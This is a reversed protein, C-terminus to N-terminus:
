APKTEITKMYEALTKNNKHSTVAAVLCCVGSIILCAVVFYYQKDGMAPVADNGITVIADHAKTPLYFVRAIQMAGIFALVGTYGTKRNKVGESALFAVLLFLLNYIISAGIVWTYYYSGVDTKYISVFYLADLVIAAIILNASLKDKTYRMRDKKILANEAKM